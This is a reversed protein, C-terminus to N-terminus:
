CRWVNLAEVITPMVFAFSIKLSIGVPLDKLGITPVFETASWPSMNVCEPYGSGPLVVIVSVDSFMSRSLTGRLPPNRSFIRASDISGYRLPRIRSGDTSDYATLLRGPVHYVIVYQLAMCGANEMPFGHTCKSNASVCVEQDNRSYYRCDHPRRRGESRSRHRSPRAVGTRCGRHM